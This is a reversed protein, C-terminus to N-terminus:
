YSPPGVEYTMAHEAVATAFDAMPGDAVVLKTTVGTGLAANVRSLLEVANLSHMGNDFVTKAFDM